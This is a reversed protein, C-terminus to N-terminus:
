SKTLYMTKISAIITYVIVVNCLIINPYPYIFAISAYIIVVNYLIIDPYMFAINHDFWPILEEM